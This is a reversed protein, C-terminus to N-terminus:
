FLDVSYLVFVPITPKCYIGKGTLISFGDFVHTNERKAYLLIMMLLLLTDILGHVQCLVCAPSLSTVIDNNPSFSKKGQETNIHAVDSHDDVENIPDPEWTGERTM